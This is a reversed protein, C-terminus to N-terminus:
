NWIEIQTKKILQMESKKNRIEHSIIIMNEKFNKFM